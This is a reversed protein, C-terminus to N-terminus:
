SAEFTLGIPHAAGDAGFTSFEPTAAKVTQGARYFTRAEGAALRAMNQSSSWPGRLAPGMSVYLYGTGRNEITISTYVGAYSHPTWDAADHASFTRPVCPEELDTWVKPTAAV